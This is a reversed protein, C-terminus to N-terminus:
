NLMRNSARCTPEPTQSHEVGAHHDFTKDGITLSDGEFFYLTRKVGESFIVPGSRTACGPTADIRLGGERGCECPVVSSRYLGLGVEVPVHNPVWRVPAQHRGTGVDSTM